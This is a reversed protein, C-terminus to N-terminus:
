SPCTPSRGRRKQRRRQGSLAEKPWSGDDQPSHQDDCGNAHGDVYRAMGRQRGPGSRGTSGPVDADDGGHHWWEPLPTPAQRRRGGGPGRALGTKNSAWHARFLITGDKDIIYASNPKPSLAQHLTGDVDDVAVEFQHGHFDRILEAHKLKEELTQPQPVSAGPHGERVSVLMFRVRDGFRGHLENIGPAASETMPCTLSGFVLLVPGTEQLDGSSCTTGDLTQLEFDPIKDSPRPVTKAYVMDKLGETMRFREFRYNRGSNVPGKTKEATTM